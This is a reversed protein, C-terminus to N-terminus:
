ILQRYSTGEDLLVVARSPFRDSDHRTEYRQAKAFVKLIGESTSSPSGQHPIIYVQPHTRFYPDISDRGRLNEKVIKVALSKSAGPAGILFLPTRTLICATMSHVNELLAENCATFTPLRMRTIIDEQDERVITAFDSSSMSINNRVFIESMANRYQLRTKQDSLRGQYCLALALVLPRVSEFEKPPYRKRASSQMPSHQHREPASLERGFFRAFGIARRVDRLSVSHADEIDRIFQQSRFLLESFLFTIDFSARSITYSNKQNVFNAVMIEIYAREDRAELVGYDWIFDLLKQPLPHVQYVLQSQEEYESHTQVERGGSQALQLYQSSGVANTRFFIIVIVFM